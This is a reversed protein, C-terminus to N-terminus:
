VWVEATLQDFAMGLLTNSNVCKADQELDQLFKKNIKKRDILREALHKDACMSTDAILRILKGPLDDYAYDLAEMFEDDFEAPEDQQYKYYDGYTLDDLAKFPVDAYDFWDSDIAAPNRKAPLADWDIVLVSFCMQRFHDLCLSEKESHEMDYGISLNTCEPIIHTFEATDTYIGGNDPMFMLNENANLADSLAEAFEDSCCRGYGQHTIVSYTNRRDFAVARDFQGLLAMKNEALWKAGLGGCEEGQTFIYYGPVQERIMHALIAVGAGDDAGLQSKVASWKDATKHVKNVGGSRHVTDVHAVFLTRSPEAGTVARMDVHLNGFEDAFSGKCQKKLWATFKTTSVSGHPRKTTLAKDLVAFAFKFQEM